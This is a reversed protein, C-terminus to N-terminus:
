GQNSIHTTEDCMLTYFDAAHIRKMIHENLLRDAMLSLIENQITHNMYNGRQKEIWKKLDDDYKGVLEALAFFNSEEKETGQIAINRMCLFRLNELLMM